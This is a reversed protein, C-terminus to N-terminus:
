FSAFKGKCSGATNSAWKSKGGSYLVMNGDNQVRLTYGNTNGNTKSSWLVSGKTSYLM